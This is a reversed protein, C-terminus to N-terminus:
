VEGPDGSRAGDARWPWPRRLVWKWGAALVAVIGALAGFSTVLPRLDVQSCGADCSRPPSGPSSHRSSSSSETIFTPATTASTASSGATSGPSTTSRRPSRSTISDSGDPSASRSPTPHHPSAACPAPTAIEGADGDMRHRYVKRFKSRGTQLSRHRACVRARRTGIDARHSTRRRRRDRGGTDIFSTPGADVLEPRDKGDGSWVGARRAAPGGQAFPTPCEAATWRGDPRGLRCDALPDELPM